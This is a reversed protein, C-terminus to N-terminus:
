PGGETAETDPPLVAAVLTLISARVHEPLKPWAAVVRALDPSNVRGDSQRQNAARHLTVPASSLHGSLSSLIQDFNKQHRHAGTVNIGLRLRSEITLVCNAKDTADVVFALQEGWSWASMGSKATIRRLAPDQSEITFGLRPLVVLLGNFVQDQRFPFRQRTEQNAISVNTARRM